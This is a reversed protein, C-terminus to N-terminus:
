CFFYGGGAVGGGYSQRKMKVDGKKWWAMTMGEKEGERGRKTGVAQSDATAATALRAVIVVCRPSSM